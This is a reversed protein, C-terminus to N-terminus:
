VILSLQRNTSHMTCNMDIFQQIPCTNSVDCSLCQISRIRAQPAEVITPKSRDNRMQCSYIWSSSNDINSILCDNRGIWGSARQIQQHVGVALLPWMAFFLQEFLYCQLASFRFCFAAVARHRHVFLPTCEVLMIYYESAEVCWMDVILHLTSFARAYLCFFFFFFIAQLFIMTRHNFITRDSLFLYSIIMQTNWAEITVILKAVQSATQSLGNRYFTLKRQPVPLLCGLLPVTALLCVMNGYIWRFSQRNASRDGSASACRCVTAIPASSCCNHTDGNSMKARTITGCIEFPSPDAFDVIVIQKNSVWENNAITEVSIRERINRGCVSEDITQLSCERM